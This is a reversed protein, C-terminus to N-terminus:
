RRQLPRTTSLAPCAGPPHRGGCSRGHQTNLEM